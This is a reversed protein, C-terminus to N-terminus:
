YDRILMEARLSEFTEEKLMNGGKNYNMRGMM